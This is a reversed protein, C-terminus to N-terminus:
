HCYDNPKFQLKHMVSQGDTSDVRFADIVSSGKTAPRDFIQTVVLGEDYYSYVGNGGVPNFRMTLIIGGARSSDARCGAVDVTFDLPGSSTPPKPTQTPLAELTAESTANPTGGELTPTGTIIDTGTVPTTTAVGILPALTNVPAVTAVSTNTPALPPVAPTMTPASAGIPNPTSSTAPGLSCAILTVTFIALWGILIRSRM